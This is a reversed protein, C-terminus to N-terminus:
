DIQIAVEESLPRRKVYLTSKLTKHFAGKFDGKELKGEVILKEIKTRSPSGITEIHQELEHELLGGIATRLKVLDIELIERYKEGLRERLLNEDYKISVNQKLELIIQENNVPISFSSLERNELFQQIQTRLNRKEYEMRDIEQDVNRYQKLLNLIEDDQNM